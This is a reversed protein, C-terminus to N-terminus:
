YTVPRTCANSLCLDWSMRSKLGISSRASLLNLHQYTSVSCVYCIVTFVSFLLSLSSLSKYIVPSLIPLFYYMKWGLMKFKKTSLIEKVTKCPCTMLKYEFDIKWCKNIHFHVEKLALVIYVWNLTFNISQSGWTQYERLGKFGLILIQIRM